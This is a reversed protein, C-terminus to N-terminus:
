PRNTPSATPRENEEARVATHVVYDRNQAVSALGGSKTAGNDRRKAFPQRRKARCPTVRRARREPIAAAGGSGRQPGSRDSSPRM